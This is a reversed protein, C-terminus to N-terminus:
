LGLLSRAETSSLRAGEAAADPPLWEPFPTERNVHKGSATHEQVVRALAAPPLEPALAALAPWLRRHVMTLKNQLLRCVLIDSSDNLADLVSFIQKGKPHGWWSGKVPEGAIADTLRPASGQASVLVVGHMRVFELAQQTDM